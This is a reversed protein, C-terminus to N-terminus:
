SLQNNLIYWFLISDICKVKCKLSQRKLPVFLIINIFNCYIHFFSLTYLIYAYKLSCIIDICVLSSEFVENFTIKHKWFDLWLSTNFIKFITQEFKSPKWKSKNSSFNKSSFTLNFAVYTNDWYRILFYTTTYLESLRM